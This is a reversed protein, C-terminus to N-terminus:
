SLFKGTPRTAKGDTGLKTFRSAFVVGSGTEGKRVAARAGVGAQIDDMDSLRFRKSYERVVPPSCQHGFLASRQAAGAAYDPGSYQDCEM